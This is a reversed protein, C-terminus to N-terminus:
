PQKFAPAPNVSFGYKVFVAKAAASNEIYKAVLAAEGNATTQKTLAVPYIIPQHSPAPLHGVVQVKNSIKADTAYVIGADCEGREVFSLAARVDDTGVIRGQLPGLWGLNTLSEKAYRGVPVSEMQGTCLHGKFAGAFNFTPTAQYVFGKGKPSIVVLENGLLPRVQKADILNKDVLYRMWKEDASFFIDAPAGAEIQKALASSAGYVPVIQTTPHLQQYQKAIDTMANTLSAAAYVKVTGALASHMSSVVVVSTLLALAKVKLEIRGYLLSARLIDYFMVFVLTRM